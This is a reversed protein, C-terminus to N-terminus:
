GIQEHLSGNKDHWAECDDIERSISDVIAELEREAQELEDGDFKDWILRAENGAALSLFERWDTIVEYHTSGDSGQEAADTIRAMREPDSLWDDSNSGFPMFDEHHILEELSQPFLTKTSM